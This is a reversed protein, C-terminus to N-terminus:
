PTCYNKRTGPQCRNTGEIIKEGEPGDAWAWKEDEPRRIVVFVDPPGAGDPRPPREAEPLAEVPIELWGVYRKSEDSCQGCAYVIARVGAPIGRYKGSPREVPGLEDAPASFLEGTNQDYFYVLNEDAVEEPSCSCGAGAAAALLVWAACRAHTLSRRAFRRMAQRFSASEAAM